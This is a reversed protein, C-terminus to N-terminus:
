PAMLHDSHKGSKVTIFKKNLSVISNSSYMQISGGYKFKNKTHWQSITDYKKLFSQNVKVRESSVFLKQQLM